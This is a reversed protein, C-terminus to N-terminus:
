NPSPPPPHLSLPPRGFNPSPILLSVFCCCSYIDAGTQLSNYLFPSLVTRRCGKHDPGSTLLLSRVFSLSLSSLSRLLSTPFSPSPPIQSSILFRFPAGGGAVSPPFFPQASRASLLVFLIHTHRDTSSSTHLPTIIRALTRSLAMLDPRARPSHPLRRSPHFCFCARACLSLHPSSPSFSSPARIHRSPTLTPATPKTDGRTRFSKNDRGFRMWRQREM